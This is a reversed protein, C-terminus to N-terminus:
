RARRIYDATAKTGYYGVGVATALHGFLRLGRQAKPYRDSVNAALAYSGLALNQAFMAYKGDKTPRLEEDPHRKAAALTALGNLLNQGVIAGLASKPAVGKHWEGAVIAAAAIKDASADLAAGLDSLQHLKRAVPGDVLDLVRGFAIEAM